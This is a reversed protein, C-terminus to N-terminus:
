MSTLTRVVCVQGLFCGYRDFDKLEQQHQDEHRARVASIFAHLDDTMKEVDKKMALAKAHEARATAM